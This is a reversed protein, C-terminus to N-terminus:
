RVGRHEAIFHDIRQILEDPGAAAAPFVTWNAAIPLLVSRGGIILTKEFRQSVRQMEARVLHLPHPRELPAVLSPGSWRFLKDEASLGQALHQSFLRLIEDGVAYGFRANVAAVRDVVFVAVHYNSKGLLDSRLFAEAQGRSPLGTVLDVQPTVTAAVEKIRSVGETLGQVTTSSHSKQQVMEERLSDLCDSLRLKPMKIDEIARAREIQKEIDQLRRVSQESGAGIQAITNTLLGVMNHLEANQATVFKATQRSYEEIAKIAEGTRVLVDQPSPRSELGEEM